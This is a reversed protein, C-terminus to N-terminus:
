SGEADPHDKSLERVAQEASRYLEGIDTGKVSLTRGDICTADIRYHGPSIEEIRYLWKATEPFDKDPTM